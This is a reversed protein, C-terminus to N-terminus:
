AVFFQKSEKTQHCSMSDLSKPFSFECTMHTDLGRKESSSQNFGISPRGHSTAYWDDSPEYKPSDYTLEFKTFTDYKDQTPKRTLFTLMVGRIMLPIVLEKNTEHNVVCIAHDHETPKDTLFKLKDGVEVDNLWM